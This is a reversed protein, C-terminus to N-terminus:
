RGGGLFRQSSWVAIFVALM